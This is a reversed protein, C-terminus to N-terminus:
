CEQRGGSPLATAVARCVDLLGSGYSSEKGPLGLDKATEELIAKIESFSLTPRHQLLLAATASVYAASLSTGSAFQAQNGPAASLIEVGPAAIDIFDGRTAEPYLSAQIDVATVAILNDLGAPYLTPGKPGDNGAAAVVIRGQRAAEDVLHTVLRDKPGGVSLNIVQAGKFLAADIGRAVSVSQCLAEIRNPHIPRCSKIAILRAQPAVGSIELEKTPHAAMVGALLTGHLDPSFGEGTFDLTEIIQGKLAIHNRDVGTDVLGITVGKGNSMPSVHDAHIM